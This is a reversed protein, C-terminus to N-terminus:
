GCWDRVQPGNGSGHVHGSKQLRCYDRQAAKHGKAGARSFWIASKGFDLPMGRGQRYAIGLLYQAKPLGAGAAEALLTLAKANDAPDCSRQWYFFGADRKLEPSDTPFDEFSKPPPGLNVTSKGTKLCSRIKTASGHGMVAAELNWHLAKDYDQPVGKGMLYRLGLNYKGDADEPAAVGGNGGSWAPLSLIVLMGALSIIRIFFKM